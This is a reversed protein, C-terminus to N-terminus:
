KVTILEYRRSGLSLEEAHELCLKWDSGPTVTCFRDGCDETHIHEESLRDSLLSGPTVPAANCADVCAMDLAVPDFSCFMGIDPVIPLDSESHCDCYPTVDIVINIHFQPRGMLVAAAYEAMRLNLSEGASDYAAALADFACMGICRGCGLCKEGDIRAKGDEGYSIAEQACVTACVGCGVCNDPETDPKGECHQESKGARSACGMGINKLAGGFGTLEHGKFHNLSIIVDADMIARGIKAKEIYRGGPVPVEVDDLGKLGDAIIVSCGTSAMSFGNEAAVELHELANKRRGVYLTSCDTLFPKGGREYVMDAVAKAYNPRLFGLNGPEGFHLKIATFKGSFDIDDFGAATMLRKLKPMLGGSGPAVRLDTFYVRSAEM